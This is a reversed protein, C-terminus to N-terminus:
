GKVYPTPRAKPRDYAPAVPRPDAGREQLCNCAGLDYLFHGDCVGVLTTAKRGTSYINDTPVLESPSGPEHPKSEITMRQLYNFHNGCVTTSIPRYEMGIMVYAGSRSAAILAGAPTAMLSLTIVGLFM